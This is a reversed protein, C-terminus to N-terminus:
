PAADEAAAAAEVPEAAGERVDITMGDQLGRHGEVVVREGATVGGDLVAEHGVLAGILVRKRVARGNEAVFVFHEGKRPVVAALPVVVAGERIRRLMAVRAIMGAKLAGDANDTELEVAFANSDPAARSSVFTVAGTFVRDPVAALTYTMEEGPRVAGVDREPVEFATKVRDLQVLRFVAQGENAYDGVEVFRDVIEGAFPARVECQELMVGTEDLAIQAAEQRQEVDEYESASVAGTKELEKWRALDKAADRAEIEARRRGAEWLRKDVRLLVQGKDVRDGKGAPRETVRGAREAPLLAERLPEIRGPLEIVDPVDRPALELVRVAVPREAEVEVQEEPKPLVALLVILIVVLGLAGWAWWSGRRNRKGEATSM